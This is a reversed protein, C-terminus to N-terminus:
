WFKELNKWLTGGKSKEHPTRGFKQLSCSNGCMWFFFGFVGFNNNKHTEHFFLYGCDFIWFLAKEAGRLANDPYAGDTCM